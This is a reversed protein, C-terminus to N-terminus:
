PRTARVAIPGFPMSCMETEHMRVSLAKTVKWGRGHGGSSARCAIAPSPGRTVQFPVAPAVEWVFRGDADTRSTGAVGPITIIADAVPKQTTADVVRGTFPAAQQAAVFAPMFALALALAVLRFSRDMPKSLAGAEVSSGSGKLNLARVM